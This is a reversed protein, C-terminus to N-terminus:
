IRKGLMVQERIKSLEKNLIKAKNEGIIEALSEISSDLIAQFNGYRDLVKQLDETNLSIKNLIRIGRTMIPDDLKQYNMIELIKTPEILDELPINSITVKTLLHEKKSYDRLIMMEEEAIGKTVEKLQMKVLFGESGLEIIYRRMIDAIKEIIETRQIVLLIDNLTALNTFELVNLNLMLENLVEKHKELMRMTEGARDLIEATSRLVYRLNGKYLTINKKRESVTIVLQNTQRATREGAKHRTGTENTPITFDPVLLTNAYLIKKLESDLITAGDMKCLEILRQPTFKCNVEFGGNIIGMIEPTDGAVILAGLGSKSIDDLAARLPTGPSVLKMMSILEENGDTEKKHEHRDM